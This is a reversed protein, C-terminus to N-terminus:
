NLWFTCSSCKHLKITSSIQEYDSLDDSCYMHKFCMMRYCAELDWNFATSTALKEFLGKCVTIEGYQKGGILYILDKKDPKPNLLVIFDPLYSNKIFAM